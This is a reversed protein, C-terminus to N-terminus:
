GHYEFTVLFVTEGDGHQAVELLSPLDAFGSARAVADTLKEHDIAEVSTVEIEGPPLAYRGGVRVRPRKWIRVSTTIEGSQVRPRLSKTFQM